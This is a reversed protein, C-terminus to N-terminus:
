KATSCVMAMDNECVRDFSDFYEQNALYIGTNKYVVFYNIEQSDLKDQIDSFEQTWFYYESCDRGTIAEYWYSYADSDCLLPVKDEKELEEMVYNCAEVHENGYIVHTRKYLGYNFGYIDLSQIDMEINEEVKPLESRYFHGLVPLFVILLYIVMFKSYREMIRCIAQFAVLFSFLWFPYYFKSFYYFSIYGKRSLIMFVAIVLGMCLQSAMVIDLQRKYICYVFMYLFLPLIWYFNLHREAYCGGSTRIVQNVSINVQALVGFYICCYYIDLITPLLFIKMNMSVWSLDLKHHEMIYVYTLYLFLLVFSFPGFLMYCMTIAHCTVMMAPLLRSREIQNEHYYKALLLLSGIMLIAMGWYFFSFLYSMIPYGLVYVAFIVVAAAKQRATRAYERLLVMFMEIELFFFFHDMLIFIKYANVEKFVPLFCQITMGTWLESFYMGSLHGHRVVAMANKFHVAADSNFFKLQPSLGKFFIFFASMVVALAALFGIDFLNWAYTQTKEDKRSRYHFLIGIVLHICIMTWLNIPIKILNVIGVVFASACLELVFTLLLWTVGNLKKESKFCRWITCYAYIFTLLYLVSRIIEIM